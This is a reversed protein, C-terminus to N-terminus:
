IQDAEALDYCPCFVLANLKKLVIFCCVEQGLQDFHVVKTSIVAM